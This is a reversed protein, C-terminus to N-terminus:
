QAVLTQVSDWYVHMIEPEPRLICSTLVQVHDGVRVPNSQIHWVLGDPRRVWEGPLLTWAHKQYDPLMTM